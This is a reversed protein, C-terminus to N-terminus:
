HQLRRWAAPAAGFTKKFARSFAAESEYGVGDAIQALPAQSSRLRHAALQMRCRALYHMPPLGVLRSFRDVLASRSLGVARGIEDLSWDRACERHLLALTRAVFPDRLGALWGTEDAPLSEVHRRIAEVFLLESLKTLIAESGPRGAGVKDAAYAFTSRIWDAGEGKEIDLTMARPLTSLIPSCDLGGSALFGCIIRTKSGDGGHRVATLDGSPSPRIIESAPVPPLTIDSALVHLDNGPLLLVEGARLTVPEQGDVRVNMVGEVVYHYPILHAAPGLVPSCHEPSLRAAICWPEFLDAYFFVGGTLHAERLVESLADM